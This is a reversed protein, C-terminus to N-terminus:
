LPFALVFLFTVPGRKVSMILCWAVMLRGAKANLLCLLKNFPNLRMSQVTGIGAVLSSPLLLLACALDIGAYLKRTTQFCLVTCHPTEASLSVQEDSM